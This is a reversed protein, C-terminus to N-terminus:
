CGLRSCTRTLRRMRDEGRRYRSPGFDGAGRSEMVIHKDTRRLSVRRGQSISRPLLVNRGEIDEAYVTVEQKEEQSKVVRSTALSLDRIFKRPFSGVGCESFEM